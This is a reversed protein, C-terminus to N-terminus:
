SAGGEGRRVGGVEDLEDTRSPSWDISSRCVGTLGDITMTMRAGSRTDELTVSEVSLATGDTMFVALRTDTTGISRGAPASEGLEEDSAITIWKPLETRARTPTIEQDRTEDTSSATRVPDLRRTLVRMPRMAGTRADSSDRLILEVPHGYRLAEARALEGVSEMRDAVARFEAERRFDTLSLLAVGVIGVLIGIVILLEILTFADRRM